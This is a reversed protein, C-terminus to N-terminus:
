KTAVVNIFTRRKAVVSFSLFTSYAGTCHTPRKVNWITRSSFQHQPYCQQFVVPHVNLICSMCSALRKWLLAQRTTTRLKILFVKVYQCSTPCHAGLSVSSTDGKSQFGRSSATIRTTCPGGETGWRLPDIKRPRTPNSKSQKKIKREAFNDTQRWKLM